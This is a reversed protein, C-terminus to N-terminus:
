GAHILQIYQRRRAASLALIDSERWGYARALQHVERLTRQAWADIEAWFYAVIDFVASWNAGCNPCTIALQIDAQPDAQSLGEGVCDLVHEPLEAVTVPLNDHMAQVICRRIITLRASDASGAAIIDASTVPRYTVTYGDIHVPEPSTEPPPTRIDALAFSLEVREGCDPCASVSVIQDGFLWGRLTMLAADRQGVPWDRVPQPTADATSLLLLAQEVPLLGAGQEWAGLLDAASLPRM